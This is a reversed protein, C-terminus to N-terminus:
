GVIHWGEYGFIKAMITNVILWALFVLALGGIAWLITNKAKTSMEPNGLSFIYLLGGIVIFLLCVITSLYVLCNVINRIMVFIDSLTCNDKCPVLDHCPGAIFPKIYIDLNSLTLTGEIAKTSCVAIPVTCYDEDCNEMAKNLADVFEQNRVAQTELLSESSSWIDQGGVKLQIDSLAKVAAYGLVESLDNYNKFEVSKGGTPGSVENMYTYTDSDGQGYGALGYVIVSNEIAADKAQVKLTNKYDHDTEDSIAIVVRTTEERWNYNKSAWVIGAMWAECACDELKSNGVAGELEEESLDTLANSGCPDKYLRGYDKNLSYVTAKIDIGKENALTNIITDKYDCVDDWEDDMSGSTDILFVLDLKGKEVDGSLNLGASEVPSNSPLTVSFTECYEGRGLFIVTEKSQGDSFTSVTKASANGYISFVSIFTLFGILLIFTKRKKNKIKKM